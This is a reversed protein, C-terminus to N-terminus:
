SRMEKLCVLLSSHDKPIPACPFMWKYTCKELNDQTKIAMYQLNYCLAALVLATPKLGYPGSM